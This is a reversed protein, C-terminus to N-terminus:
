EGFPRLTRLVDSFDDTLVPGSPRLSWGAPLFREVDEPVGVVVWESTFASIREARAPGPQYSLDAAELGAARATASIAPALEYHRNSVHFVMLSGPRLKRLYLEIAERTLLHSPIADSSFADLVILDFSADAEDVLSLRADGPVIRSEVAADGLYTFYEGNTALDIVAPDIEFFTMTDGPQAYAAITGTGLGVVGVSASDLRTRLDKFLDGLPGSEVYYTTAETSREDWYQLGHLTTGSYQAYAQGDRVQVETVGFFNRVRTEYPTAAVLLFLALVVATATAMLLPTRGVLIVGIGGAVFILFRSGVGAEGFLVVLIGIVVVYPAAAVAAERVRRGLGQPTRWSARDGAPGAMPTLVLIAAIILIPYEYVANFILPALLAVFATALLGGAAIILYFRTLQREAPRDLALRGHLAVALVAYSGLVLALLIGVHLGTELVFPLWLLAAAAPVLPVLWRLSRRGRESFAVVFSALYISLPGVWILPASVLDTAVFNTTAALLGAPVFALALWRLQRHWGLEAEGEDPAEADDTGEARGPPAPAAARRWGIIVVALSAAYLLLGATVLTRQLSLPIVPEILLPYAFLAVFSAGNSVAYLWWPERGHQAFWASVLPTTSALLFIPAGAILLLALLVDLAEPLGPQRLSAIDSPALLAAVVVVATVVLHLVGGTRADLRTAVLHAHFYGVFLLGTFLVLATTWVGPTGGFVPLVLRGALLEITFLLFASLAITVVVSAVM